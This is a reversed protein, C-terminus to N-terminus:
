RLHEIIFPHGWQQNLYDAALSRHCRSPLHESCLLCAHDFATANFQREVQRDVLLQQYIAQYGEWDIMKSKYGDLLEKSPALEPLHLYEIGAIVDLFYALDDRKAFGALQSRNNLRIDVLRKVGAAQLREFFHRATKETFGITLLKM